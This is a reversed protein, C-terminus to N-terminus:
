NRTCSRSRAHGPEVPRRLDTPGGRRCLWWQDMCVANGLKGATWCLAASNAKEYEWRSQTVLARRRRHRYSWTGPSRSSSTCFRFADFEDFIQPLNKWHEWVMAEPVAYSGDSLSPLIHGDTNILDEEYARDTCVNLSGDWLHIGVFLADRGPDFARGFQVNGDDPGQHIQLDNEKAWTLAIGRAETSVNVIPVDFQVHLLMGLRVKFTLSDDPDAYIYGVESPSLPRSRGGGDRYIYLAPGLCEPLSLHWIQNRLEPPLTGFLAFTTLSNKALAQTM